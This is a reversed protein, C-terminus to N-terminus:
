DWSHVVFRMRLMEHLVEETVISDNVNACLQAYTFTAGVSLSSLFEVIKTLEPDQGRNLQAALFLETTPGAKTLLKYSGGSTGHTDHLLKFQEDDAVLRRLLKSFARDVLSEAIPGDPLRVVSAVARNATNQQVACDLHDDPTNSLVELLVDRLTVPYFGLTLHMSGENSHTATKHPSGKPLILVDGAELTTEFLPEPSESRSLMSSKQRRLPPFVTWTKKGYLQLVLADEGDQHLAFGEAHPPSAFVTGATASSTATTLKHCIHMLEPIASQADDMMITAGRSFIRNLYGRDVIGVHSVKLMKNREYHHPPVRVGDLVARIQWSPMNRTNIARLFEDGIVTAADAAAAQVFEAEARSSLLLSEALPLLTAALQDARDGAVHTKDMMM